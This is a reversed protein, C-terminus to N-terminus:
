DSKSTEQYALISAITDTPKTKGSKWLAKVKALKEDLGSARMDEEIEQASRRLLELEEDTLLSGSPKTKAMRVLTQTASDPAQTRRMM